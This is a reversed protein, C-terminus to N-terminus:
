SQILSLMTVSVFGKALSARFSRLQGRERDFISLKICNATQSLHHPSIGSRNFPCSQFDHTGVFDPGLTRRGSARFWLPNLASPLRLDCLSRACGEREISSRCHQTTQSRKSIIRLSARATSPARNSITHESLIPVSPEFGEREAMCKVHHM